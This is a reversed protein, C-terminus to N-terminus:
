IKELKNAVIAVDMTKLLVNRYNQKYDYSCNHVESARHMSCHTEGCKCPFDVLTIKKKCGNFGCRSKSPKAENTDIPAPKTSPTLPVLLPSNGITTM